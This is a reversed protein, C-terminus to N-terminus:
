QLVRGEQMSIVTEEPSSEFAKGVKSIFYSFGDDKVEEKLAKYSEEDLAEAGDLCIVKTKKALSRALGVALKMASSTSLNEIASGEYLFKTGDFTIGPLPMETSDLMDQKVKDKLLNVCRDLDEAKRQAEVVRSRQGELNNKQSLWTRYNANKSKEESHRMKLGNLKDIESEPSGLDLLEKQTELSREAYEKAKLESNKIEERLRILEREHSEAAQQTISVERQKQHILVRKEQLARLSGDCEGMMRDLEPDEHSGKEPEVQSLREQEVKLRAEENKANKNAEARRAYFYEHLQQIVKLGHATYDVPPLDVPLPKLSETVM